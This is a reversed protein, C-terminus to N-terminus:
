GLHLFQRLIELISPSCWQLNFLDDQSEAPYVWHSKESSFNPEVCVHTNPALTMLLLLLDVMLIIYKIRSQKGKLFTFVARSPPPLDQLSSSVILALSFCRQFTWQTDLNKILSQSIRDNSEWILDFKWFYTSSDKESALWGVSPHVMILLPFPEWGLKVLLLGCM